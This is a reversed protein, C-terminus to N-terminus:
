GIGHSQVWKVNGPPRHVRTSPVNKSAERQSTAARNVRLAPHDGCVIVIRLNHGKQAMIAGFSHARASAMTNGLLQPFNQDDLPLPGPDLAAAHRNSHPCPPM